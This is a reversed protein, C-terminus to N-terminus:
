FLQDGLRISAVVQEIAERFLVLEHLTQFQELEKAIVSLVKYNWFFEVSRNFKNLADLLEYIGLLM